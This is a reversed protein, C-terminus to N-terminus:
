ANNAPNPMWQPHREAAHEYADLAVVLKDTGHEIMDLFELAEQDTELVEFASICLMLANLRGKLNHRPHRLPDEM